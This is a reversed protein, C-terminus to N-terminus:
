LARLRRRSSAGPALVSVRYLGARRPRVVTAFRGRRVRIRKRQVTVWRSGIRRELLCVLQPAGPALTGSVAARRGARVRPTNLRMALAPLVTVSAAPSELRPRAADGAFVARVIGSAPLAVAARWDGGPGTGTTAVPRWARGSAQFELVLPVNEPSSADAFALRGAVEAPAAGRVRPNAVSLELAAVARPVYRAVRARLEGLQAHLGEGPCATRNADRHAAVRAFTVSAGSPHRSTAGGASTVTVTGEVPVGHLTLKWAILRALADLGAETQAVASFDGICAIGTSVSNFGQAQAGVVPQDIGGARGEFVQGYRDVLFNYGLDNWGNGDRHYRAFALVMAASDGPGYDRAPPGTHHVFALQVSGFSPPEKPPVLAGGWAARPIIPPVQAARARPALRRAAGATPAARVFRARLGEARGRLRLQVLDAAGTWAPETGLRPRGEPADPGHDGLAPLPLWGTWSGGARRARVQAEVAGRAWGLGVLDFRRPARLPATVRWGGAALAGEQVPLEFLASHGRAAALAPRAPLSGAALAAAGLGLAERRTLRRRPV